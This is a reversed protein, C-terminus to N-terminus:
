NNVIIILIIKMISIDKSIWYFKELECSIIKKEDLKYIYM